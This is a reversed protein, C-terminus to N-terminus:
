APKADLRITVGEAQAALAIAMLAVNMSAGEPPVAARPAPSADSRRAVGAARYYRAPASIGKARARRAPEADLYGASRSTFRPRTVGGM